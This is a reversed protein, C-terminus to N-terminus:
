LSAVRVDRMASRIGIYITRCQNDSLWYGDLCLVMVFLFVDVELYSLTLEWLRRL